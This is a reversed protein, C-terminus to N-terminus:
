AANNTAPLPGLRAVLDPDVYAFLTNQRVLATLSNGAKALREHTSFARGDDGAAEGRLFEDCESCWSAHAALRAAARESARDM